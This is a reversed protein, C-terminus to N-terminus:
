VSTEVQILPAPASAELGALTAASDSVQLDVSPASTPPDLELTAELAVQHFDQYEVPHYPDPAASLEQVQAAPPDVLEM